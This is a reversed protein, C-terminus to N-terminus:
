KRMSRKFGRDLMEETRLSRDNAEQALSKAGQATSLAQEATHQANRTENQVKTVDSHSACGSFVAALSSVLFCSIYKMSLAGYFRTTVKANRALV